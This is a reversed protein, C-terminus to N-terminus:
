GFNSDDGAQQLSTVATKIPNPANSLAPLVGTKL